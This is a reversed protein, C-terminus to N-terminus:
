GIKKKRVRYTGILNSLTSNEKQSLFIRNEIIALEGSAPYFPVRLISGPTDM